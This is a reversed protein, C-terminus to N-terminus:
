SLKFRKNKNMLIIKISEEAGSLIVDDVRKNNYENTINNVLSLYTM